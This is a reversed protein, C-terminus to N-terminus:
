VGCGASGSCQHAAVVGLFPFGLGLGLMAQVASVRDSCLGSGAATDVALSPARTACHVPALGARRIAVAGAM